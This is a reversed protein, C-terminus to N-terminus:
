TQRHRHKDTDTHTQRHRDTDTQRHTHTDTKIEAKGTLPVNGFKYRFTGIQRGEREGPKERTLGGM